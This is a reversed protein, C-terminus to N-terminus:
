GFRWRFNITKDVAIGERELWRSDVDALQLWSAAIVVDDDGDRSDEVATSIIAAALLGLPSGVPLALADRFRAYHRNSPGAMLGYRNSPGNGAM